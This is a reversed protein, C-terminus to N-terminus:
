LGGFLTQEGPNDLTFQVSHGSNKFTGNARAEKSNGQSFQLDGKNGPKVKSTVINIPSQKKGKCFEPFASAWDDATHDGHYHFKIASSKGDTVDLTTITLELCRNFLIIINRHYFLYALACFNSQICFADFPRLVKTFM